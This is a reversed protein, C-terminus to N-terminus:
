AAFIAILGIILCYIAFYILKGRKVLKIMWSCALLGSLFAAIFGVLLPMLEVSGQSTYTGKFVSLINEGIIPVLVMLFSFKAVEAKKNKLLLGTAITAGSRSIGPLVAVTQAIGIIFADKFSIEKEKQKAYYTFALFAATVLLMFGVMLLIKDTNFIEEVQDKFFVGVIGIPIMSVAIKAIYQTSENWQFSFLGKLLELIDKRFVIITSLVTAGHVVVTFVLNNEAHIGLLAKGIELHGSSSVPLFETLGQLLGLLLAEIWNM